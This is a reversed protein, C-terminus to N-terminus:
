GCTGDDEKKAILRAAGLRYDALEEASPQFRWEGNELHFEHMGVISLRAWKVAARVDSLRRVETIKFGVDTVPPCSIFVHAFADGSIIERSAKTWLRWADAWEGKDLSGFEREGAERIQDDLDTSLVSPAVPAPGVAQGPAGAGSDPSCGGLLVGSLAVTLLPRVNIVRWPHRMRSAKVLRYVEGTSVQRIASRVIVM